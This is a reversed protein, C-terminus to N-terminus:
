RYLEVKYLHINAQSDQYILYLRNDRAAFLKSIRGGAPLHLDSFDATATFSSPETTGTYLANKTLMYLTERYNALFLIDETQCSDIKEGTRIDFYNLICEYGSTLGTTAFINNYFINHGATGTIKTDGLSLGEAINYFKVAYNSYTISLATGSFQVDTISHDATGGKKRVFSDLKTMPVDDLGKLKVTKYTGNNQLRVFSQRTRGKKDYHKLVGYFSGDSGYVFNDLFHEAPIEWKIGPSQITGDALLRHLTYTDESREILTLSNSAMNYAFYEPTIGHFPIESSLISEGSFIEDKIAAQTVVTETEASSTQRVNAQCGTCIFLLLLFITGTRFHKM